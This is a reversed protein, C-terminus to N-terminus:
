AARGSRWFLVGSWVSLVVAVLTLAVYAPDRALERSELLIRAVHAVAVLGFVVCSLALYIRM